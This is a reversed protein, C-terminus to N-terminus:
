ENIPDIEDSQNTYYTGIGGMPNYPHSPIVSPSFTAAINQSNCSPCYVIGVPGTLGYNNYIDEVEYTYRCQCYPCTNNYKISAYGHEISGPQIIEKM